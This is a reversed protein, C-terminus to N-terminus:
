RNGRGVEHVVCVDLTYRTIAVGHAQTHRRADKEEHIGNRNRPRDPDCFLFRERANPVVAIKPTEGIIEPARGNGPYETHKAALRVPMSRQNQNRDDVENVARIASIQAAQFVLLLVDLLHGRQVQAGDFRQRQGDFGLVVGSVLM